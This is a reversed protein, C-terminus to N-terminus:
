LQHTHITNKVRGLCCLSDLMDRSVLILWSLSPFKNLSDIVLLTKSIGPGM